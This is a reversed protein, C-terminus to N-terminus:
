ARTHTDMHTRAHTCTRTRTDTCLYAHMHAHTYAHTLTHQYIHAHGSYHCLCSSGVCSACWCFPWGLPYVRPPSAKHYCSLQHFCSVCCAPSGDVATRFCANASEVASCCDMMRAPPTCISAAAMRDNNSCARGAM